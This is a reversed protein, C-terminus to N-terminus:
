LSIRADVVFVSDEFAVLPNLDMERVEGACRHGTSLRTPSDREAKESRSRKEGRVGKLLPAAKLSSLMEQAEVDTVPSLKFAVDKFVEVYIGGLGCVVLHGLEDDAKAGVIVEKGGPLYKQVLFRLGPEKHAKSMKEVAQRVATADTLNMAVGGMESKHVSAESDTKVVVPFGIGLLM